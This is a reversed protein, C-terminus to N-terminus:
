GEMESEAERRKNEDVDCRYVRETINGVEMQEIHRFWSPTSRNNMYIM